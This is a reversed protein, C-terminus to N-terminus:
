DYAHVGIADTFANRRGFTNATGITWNRLIDWLRGWDIECCHILGRLGTSLHGSVVRSTTHGHCAPSM